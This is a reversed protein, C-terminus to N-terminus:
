IPEDVKGATVVFEILFSEKGASQRSIGGLSRVESIADLRAFRELLGAADDALGGLRVQREQVELRTLYVSDPLFDTLVAIVSSVPLVQSGSTAGLAQLQEGIRLLREREAVVPAAARMLQTLQTQADFVRQRELLYPTSALLLGGALAVLAAGVVALQSHRESRLRMARAPTEFEVYRGGSQAFVALGPEALGQMEIRRRMLSRSTMAVIVRVAGSGVLESSFGWVLDDPEFPSLTEVELALAEARDREALEPQMREFTIVDDDDLLVGQYRGSPRAVDRGGCLCRAQGDPAVVRVVRDARLWAFMPWALMEHWGQRLDAALRTADLGFLRLESVEFGM